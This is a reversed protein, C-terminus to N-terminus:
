SVRIVGHEKVGMVNYYVFAAIGLAFTTNVNATPAASLPLLGWFIVSSFLFSFRPSLRFTSKARNVWAYQTVMGRLGEIAVDVMTVLNFRASPIVCAVRYQSRIALNALLSLTVTLFLLVLVAGNVHIFEPNHPLLPLRLLWSTPGTHEMKM